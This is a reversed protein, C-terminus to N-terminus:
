RSEGEPALEQVLVITEEHAIGGGPAVRAVRQVIAVSRAERLAPALARAEPWLALLAARAAPLDPAGAEPWFRECRRHFPDVLADALGELGIERGDRLRFRVSFFRVARAEARGAFMPYHSFPWGDRRRAAALLALAVAAGQAARAIWVLLTTEGGDM